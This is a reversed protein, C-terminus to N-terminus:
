CFLFPENRQYESSKMDLILFKERYDPFQMYLHLRRTLDANQYEELIDREGKM